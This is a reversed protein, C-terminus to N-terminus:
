FVVDQIEIVLTHGSPTSLLRWAENVTGKESKACYLSTVTRRADKLQTMRLEGFCLLLMFAENLVHRYTKQKRGSHIMQSAIIRQAEQAGM